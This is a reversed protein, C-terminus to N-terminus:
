LINWDHSDTYIFGAHELVQRILKGDTKYLRYQLGHSHNYLFNGKRYTNEAVSELNCQTEYIPTFIIIKQKLGYQKKLELLIRAFESDLQVFSSRQQLNLGLRGTINVDIGRLHSRAKDQLEKLRRSIESTDPRSPDVTM